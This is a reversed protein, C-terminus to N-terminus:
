HRRLSLCFNSERLHKFFLFANWYSAYRSKMSRIGSDAEPPHRSWPPTQELAQTHEPPYRSWPPHRSQPSRPTQKRPATDAGLIPPPHYGLMCQPLGGGGTLLIVSVLLFMVKAVVENRGTIIHTLYNAVMNAELFDDPKMCWKFRLFGNSTRSEAINRHRWLWTCVENQHWWTTM